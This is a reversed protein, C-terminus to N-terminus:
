RELLAALKRLATKNNEYKLLTDAEDLSCWKSAVHEPSLKIISDPDVEVGFVHEKLIGYEDSEFAFVHVNKIIRRYNKIGTEEGLEREAAQLLNEGEKVGGTIPQWFGGKEQNRQLLLFFVAHDLKKFIIIEM